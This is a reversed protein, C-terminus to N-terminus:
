GRRRKAGAMRIASKALVITPDVFAESRLGMLSFAIPLETCALLLVEAGQSSLDGVMRTVAERPLKSPDTVGKKIYDYVLSMVLRQEDADPYVTQIGMRELAAGYLGSEVTGDTALVSARKVGKIKLLKATETPMGLVPINIKNEIQPLFYHATHCPVIIFDAGAAELRRASALMEAVPSEGGHLIADTRDPIRTNNDVLMPIHDQDREADTLSIIRNMLDVTAAPGMGGLIGITKLM